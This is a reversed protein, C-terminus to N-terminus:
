IFDSNLHKQAARPRSRLLTSGSCHFSGSASSPTPTPSSEKLPSRADLLDRLVGMPKASLLDESFVSSLSSRERQVDGCDAGSAGQALHAVAMPM